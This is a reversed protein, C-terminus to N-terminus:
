KLTVNRNKILGLYDIFVVQSNSKKVSLILENLNVAGVNNINIPLNKLDKNIYDAYKNIEQATWNHKKFGNANLGLEACVLRNILANKSMELSYIDIEKNQNKAINLVVNMMFLSKGSSTAGALIVFEGGQFSGIIDDLRKYGTSINSYMTDYYDELIKYSENSIHSLTSTKSYQTKLKNIQILDEESDANKILRHLYDEKIKKVYYEWNVNCVFLLNGDEKDIENLFRKKEEFSINDFEYVASCMNIEKKEEKLQRANEFIKKYLFSTFMEPELEEIITKQNNYKDALIYTIIKYEYDQINLNHRM